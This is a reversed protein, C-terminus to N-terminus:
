EEAEKPVPKGECCRKFKLGSGCPCPKNRETGEYMTPLRRSLYKSVHKGDNLSVRPLDYFPNSLMMMSSLFPSHHSNAESKSEDVVMKVDESVNDISSVVIIDEEQCLESKMALEAASHDQGIVAIQPRSKEM